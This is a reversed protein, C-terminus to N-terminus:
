EESEVRRQLIQRANAPTLSDIGLMDLLRKAEINDKYVMDSAEKLSVAAIGDQDEETEKPVQLPLSLLRLADSMSALASSGNRIYRDILSTVSEMDRVFQAAGLTTFKQSMLVENWLM